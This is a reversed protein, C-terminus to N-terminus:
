SDEPSKREELLAIIRENQERIKRLDAMIVKVPHGDPMHEVMCTMMQTQWDAVRQRLSRSSLVGAIGAGAVLGLVLLKKNM